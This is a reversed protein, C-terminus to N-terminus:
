RDGACRRGGDWWYVKSPCIEVAGGQSPCSAGYFCCDCTLVDILVLVVMSFAIAM